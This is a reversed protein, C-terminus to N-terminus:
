WSEFVCPHPNNQKRRARSSNTATKNARKGPLSASAFGCTAEVAWSNGREQRGKPAGAGPPVAVTQDKPDIELAKRGHIVAQAYQGSELYLKALVGHAAGLSPRLAVARKAARLAAEFDPSGPEAGEQALIDAELYLLIPDDPRRALKERVGALAGALDNQHMAMLGQAAVSLSQSPDLEYAKEFDAQARDYDALQVFLVGRAFYLPAAKPQLNIGDNVVDIGVQVSQHTASLVAFDVYLTVNHPDLLIAQRLSEVAKDTDHLDEYAASALELVSADPNASLLPQLTAIAQQPQHAMIQVSALVQRERPDEPNLALSRQFVEAANEFRKLKM